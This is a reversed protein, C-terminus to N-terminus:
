SCRYTWVPLSSFGSAPYAARVPPRGPVLVIGRTHALLEEMVVRLELRALAAGPCLHIGAGYLLNLTPDRDLRFEDPDGFVTEDRNASAWILSIRAGAELRRGGIEVARRVVRRNAILPAHLRLIEDIAVPLRSVDERLRQQLDPYAALYHVLIGVSAAITGLEGVTWNRVISVIEEDTLRRDGIREGLLRTTLDDPAAGGIKRRVNLLSRVYGDFELAVAAAAAPDGTLTADRNRRTWRRLPERLDPPWGMFACQIRLAFDQAFEGMLEVEGGWPLRTVLEVAVSRCEPEFALVREPAFYPEVLARYATHEPPDMGNPVSVHRSVVNSFTDHDALVRVVDAHRFISWHLYDSYAVPCRGRMRDYAAIQDDLVAESRPNWDPQPQNSM